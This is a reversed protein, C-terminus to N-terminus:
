ARQWNPRELGAPIHSKPQALAGPEPPAAQSLPLGQSDGMPTACGAHHCHCHGTECVAHAEGAPEDHPTADALLAATQAALEEVCCLQAGAWSLQAAVMLAMFALLIRRM